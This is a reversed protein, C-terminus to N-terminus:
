THPAPPPPHSSLFFLIAARELGVAEREREESLKASAGAEGRALGFGSTPPIEGTILTMVIKDSRYVNGM